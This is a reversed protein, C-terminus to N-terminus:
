KWADIEAISVLYAVELVLFLSMVILLLVIDIKGVFFSQKKEITYENLNNNDEQFEFNLTKNLTRDTDLSKNEEKINNICFDDKEHIVNGPIIENYKYNKENLIKDDKDLM